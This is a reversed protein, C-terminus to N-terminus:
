PSRRRRSRGKIPSLKTCTERLWAAFAVEDLARASLGVTAAVAEQESADLRYGNLELFVGAATLAVRKNGDSFPHNRTLASAYIAALHFVDSREYAHHNKPSALAADLLGEDRIGAAGGHEALLTEHIALIAGKSLWRPEHKV